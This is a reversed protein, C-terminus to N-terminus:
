FITKFITVRLEHTTQFIKIIKNKMFAKKLSKKMKGIVKESSKKM